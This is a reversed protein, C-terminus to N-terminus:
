QLSQDSESCSAAILFALSTSLSTARSFTTLILVSLTIKATLYWGQRVLMEVVTLVFQFVMISSGIMFFIKEFGGINANLCGGFRLDNNTLALNAVLDLGDLTFLPVCAQPFDHM